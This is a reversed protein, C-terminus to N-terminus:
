LSERIRNIDLKVNMKRKSLLNDYIYKEILKNIIFYETMPSMQGIRNIRDRSQLYSELDWDLEWRIINSCFQLNLGHAYSKPNMLLFQYDGNRFSEIKEQVEKDGSTLHLVKDGLHNNLFSASEIFHNFLLAQDDGLEEIIEDLVEVKGTKFRHTMDDEYFLFGSSVQRLKMLQTMIFDVTYLEEDIQYLCDNKIEMYLTEQEKLLSYTRIESTIPPLDVCDRKKHQVSFKNIKNLIIDYTDDHPIWSYELWPPQYFYRYRFKYFEAKISTATIDFVSWSLFRLQTFIDLLNNPAITGTMIARYRPQNDKSTRSMQNRALALIAQTRKSKINKIKTSEDLIIYKWDIENLEDYVRWFSDYNIINFSKVGDKLAKKIKATGGVLIQITYDPFYESLQEKWVSEMISKPCIILVPDVFLQQLMYIQVLTKGTGPQSLDAFYPHSFPLDLFKQVTEQQHAYLYDYSLQKKIKM